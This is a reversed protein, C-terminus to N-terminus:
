KELGKLFEIHANVSQNFLGEKIHANPLIEKADRLSNKMYQPDNTYSNAFLIIEGHFDKLTDLFTGIPMPFTYWWIPFFLLIRDYDQINMSLNKIEPHIKKDIEKKAEVYACTDYNKSYPIAREIRKVDMKMVNRISEVLKKTNNSYTFYILLNKLAQNGGAEM